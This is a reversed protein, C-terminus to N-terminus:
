CCWTFRNQIILNPFVLLPVTISIVIFKRQRVIHNLYISIFCQILKLIVSYVHSPFGPDFVIIINFLIVNFFAFYRKFYLRKIWLFNFLRFYIHKIVDILYENYFMANKTISYWIYYSLFSSNMLKIISFIYFM